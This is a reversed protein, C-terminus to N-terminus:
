IKVKLSEYIQATLNETINSYSKKNSYMVVFLLEKYSVYVKLSQLEKIKHREDQNYKNVSIIEYRCDNGSARDVFNYDHKASLFEQLSNYRILMKNLDQPMNQRLYTEIDTLKAVKAISENKGGEAINNDCTYRLSATMLSIDCEELTM